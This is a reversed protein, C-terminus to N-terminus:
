GDKEEYKDACAACCFLHEKGKIVRKYAAFACGEGVQEKCLECMKSTKKM